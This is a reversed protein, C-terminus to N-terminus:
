ENISGMNGDLKAYISKGKTNKKDKAAAAAGEETEDEEKNLVKAAEDLAALAEDVAMQGEEVKEAVTELTALKAADAAVLWPELLNMLSDGNGEAAHRDDDEDEAGSKGGAAVRRTARTADGFDASAEGAADRSASDNNNDAAPRSSASPYKALLQSEEALHGLMERTERRHRALAANVHSKEQALAKQERAVAQLKEIYPTILAASSAPAAAAAAATRQPASASRQEDRQRQKQQQKQQEEEEREKDERLIRSWERTMEEHYSLMALIERRLEVHRNYEHQIEATRAELDFDEGEEGGEEPHQHGKGGSGTGNEGNGDYGSGGEEDEEDGDGAKSLQTEIWVILADKVARLAHLQVEPAVNRLDVPHQHGEDEDEAAAAAVADRRERERRVLIKQRLSERRARQLLDRARGEAAAGDRTFGDMLARPMAPLPDCGRFVSAPDLLADPDAAPLAGLADAHRIAARSRAIRDSLGAKRARLRLLEAELEAETTEGTGPEEEGGKGEGEGGSGHQPSDARGATSTGTRHEERARAFGAQQDAATRAAELFERQATSLVLDPDAATAAAAGGDGEFAATDRDLLALPNALQSRGLARALNGAMARRVADVEEAPRIQHRLAFLVREKFEPDELDPLATAAAASM